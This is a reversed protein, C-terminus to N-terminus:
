CVTSHLILLLQQLSEISAPNAMQQMLWCGALHLLCTVFHLRPQQQHTGVDTHRGTRSPQSRNVPRLAQTQPDPLM